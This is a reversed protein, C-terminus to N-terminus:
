VGEIIQHLLWQKQTSLRVEIVKGGGGRSVQRFAGGEAVVRADFVALIGDRPPFRAVAILPMDDAVRIVVEAGEVRASVGLRREDYEPHNLYAQGANEVLAVILEKVFDMTHSSVAQRSPGGSRSLDGGAEDLTREMDDSDEELDIATRASMGYMSCSMSVLYEISPLISRQVAFVDMRRSERHIGGLNEFFSNLIHRDVPRMDALGLVRESLGHLLPSAVRHLQIQMRRGHQENALQVLLGAASAVRDHERIRLGLAYPLLCAIYAFPIVTAPWLGARQSPTILLGAAALCLVPWVFPRIRRMVPGSNREEYVTAEILPGSAASNLYLMAVVFALFKIWGDEDRVSTGFSVAVLSCLVAVGGLIGTPNFPLKSYVSRWWRILWLQESRAGSTEGAPVQQGASGDRAIRSVEQRVPRELVIESIGQVLAPVLLLFAWWRTGPGLAVLCAAMAALLALRTMFQRIRDYALLRHHAVQRLWDSAARPHALDVFPQKWRIWADKDDGLPARFEFLDITIQRPGTM